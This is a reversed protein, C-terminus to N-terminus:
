SLENRASTAQIGLNQGAKISAKQGLLAGLSYAVSAYFPMTILLQDICRERPQCGWGFYFSLRAHISDPRLLVSAYPSVLPTATFAYALIALPFIWIWLMCKHQLRRGLLWGFYLGTVIQVPYFPNETLIWHVLRVSPKWPSIATLVDVLESLGFAAVFAIGWTGVFQHLAFLLLSKVRTMTAPVNPSNIDNSIGFDADCDTIRKKACGNLLRIRLVGHGHSVRLSCLCFRLKLSAPKLEAKFYEFQSTVAIRKPTPLRASKIM